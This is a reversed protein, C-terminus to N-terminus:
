GAKIWYLQQILNVSTPECNIWLSEKVLLGKGAQRLSAVKKEVESMM